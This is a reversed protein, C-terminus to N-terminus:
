VEKTELINHLNVFLELFRRGKDTTYYKGMNHSLLGRVTLFKLHKKLRTYNMNTKHMINTKVRKKECVLLIEAIIEVRGRRVGHSIAKHYESYQQPREFGKRGYLTVASSDQFLNNEM